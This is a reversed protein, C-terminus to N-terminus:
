SKLSAIISDIDDTDDDLDDNERALDATVQSRAEQMRLKEDAIAEATAANRMANSLVANTDNSGLLENIRQQAAGTKLKIDISKARQELDSIREESDKIQKLTRDYNDKQTQLLSKNSELDKRVRALRSAHERTKNSTEEGKAIADRIRAELKIVDKEGEKVQKDLNQEYANIEILAQSSKSLEERADDVAQQLLAVPDHNEVIRSAKGVQARGANFFRQFATKNIVALMVGGVLLILM